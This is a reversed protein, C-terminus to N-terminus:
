NSPPFSPYGPNTDWFVQTTLDTKQTLNPNTIVEDSPYLFSRPYPGPDAEWNPLLNTPYGTRRYFNHAEAGSGYLAIFYQTGLVNMKEEATAAGTYSAVIDAIYDTVETPTPEYSTEADPDVAIFSQTKAISKTLGAQIFAAVTADSAGSVYAAEAKWFDVYSALIIPEIGAGAGGAGQEVGEFRDDDFNGAAPYVGPATKLLGDPPGGEDNGHSRGWYGNPLSCYPYGAYHDPVVYLSCALAEEDVPVADGNVDVDGPTGDTQRYFYYRMRPDGLEGMQWMIWNSRYPGVGTDQYGGAYDPHRSDPNLIRTGYQFQLDDASSTIYNGSNVISNFSAIDGTTIYAKMKITNVAKLWKSADGGYYLDIAASPLSPSSAFIAAAEDLLTLAAAYVSPGDDMLPAPYELPNLAQSYVAEGIYDVTLLLTHALMAKGMGINFSYDQTTNPDIEEIALLNSMIDVYTNNWLGNSTGGTFNNFYIRGSMYEIRTMQAGNNNFSTMANRYGLQMTNLLLNPDAQDGSLSNPDTQLDLETTECSSLPVLVMLVISIYKFIKKM